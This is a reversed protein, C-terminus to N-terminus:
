EALVLKAGDFTLEARQEEANVAIAAIVAIIIAIVAYVLKGYRKM